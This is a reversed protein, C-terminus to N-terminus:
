SSYVRRRARLGLLMAGIVALLMLGYCLLYHATQSVQWRQNLELLFGIKYEVAFEMLLVLGICALFGAFLSLVYRWGRGSRVLWHLLVGGAVMASLLQMVRIFGIRAYGDRRLSEFWIQMVAYLFLLLYFRNGTGPKSQDRLLVFALGLAFLGAPVFLALAWAEWYSDYVSIPFFWLTENTIYLSYGMGATGELLRACAIMLAIAQALVDALRMFPLEGAKTALLIALLVGLGAGYLTYGGEQLQLLRMPEELTDSLYILGYLLRSGIIGLPIALLLFISSVRGPIRARRMLWAGLGLCIAVSLAILLAYLSIGLGAIKFLPGENM